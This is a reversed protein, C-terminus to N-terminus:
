HLFGHIILFGLERDLTHNYEISQEKAKDISIVLDGLPLPLDKNKSHTAKWNLNEQIPFSLVDTAQDINRYQHNLEQIDKNNVFTVSVEASRMVNEKEASFRLLNHLLNLQEETLSNTQDDFDIQM